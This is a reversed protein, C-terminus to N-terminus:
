ALYAKHAEISSAGNHRMVEDVVPENEQETVTVALIARGRDYDQAMQVASGQPLGQRELFGAVGGALAGTGAGAALAVAAAALTGGGLILGFGPIVITALATAAGLGLGIGAGKALSEGLEGATTGQKVHNDTDRYADADPDVKLSEPSGQDMANYGASFKIPSGPLGESLLVEDLYDEDPVPHDANSDRQPVSSYDSTGLGSGTHDERLRHFEADLGREIRPVSLQRLDNGLPDPGIQFETGRMPTTPRTDELDVGSGSRKTSDQDKVLLSIENPRIGQRLLEDAATRARNPDSFTAYLTHAM